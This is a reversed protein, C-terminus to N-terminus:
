SLQYEPIQNFSPEDCIGTMLSMGVTSKNKTSFIRSQEIVPKIFNDEEYSLEVKYPTM